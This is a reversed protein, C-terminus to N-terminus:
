KNRRDFYCVACWLVSLCVEALMIVSMLLKIKIYLDLM